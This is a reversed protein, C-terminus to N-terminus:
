AHDLAEVVRHEREVDVVFLATVRHAGGVAPGVGRVARGEASSSREYGGGAQWCRSGRSGRREGGASYRVASSPHM